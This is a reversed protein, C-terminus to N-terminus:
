DHDIGGKFDFDVKQYIPKREWGVHKLIEYGTYDEALERLLETESDTAYYVQYTYGGDYEIDVVYGYGFYATEFRRVDEESWVCFDYYFDQWESQVSGKLMCHEWRGGTIISLVECLATDSGRDNFRCLSESLRVLEVTTFSRRVARYNGFYDNMILEKNPCDLYESLFEGTTLAKWFKRLHRPIYEPFDENGFLIGRERCLESEIYDNMPEPCWEEPPLIKVVGM